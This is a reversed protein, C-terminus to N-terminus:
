NVCDRRWIIIEIGSVHIKCVFVLFLITKLVAQISKIDVSKAMTHADISYNISTRMNSSKAIAYSRIQGWPQFSRIASKWTVIEHIRIQNLLIQKIRIRIWIGLVSILGDFIGRYKQAM